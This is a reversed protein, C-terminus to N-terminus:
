MVICASRDAPQPAPANPTPAPNPPPLPYVTQAPRVSHYSPYNSARSSSPAASSSRPVNHVQTSYPSLYTSVYTPPAPPVNRVPPPSTASQYYQQYSSQTAQQQAAIQAKRDTIDSPHYYEILYEPYTQHNDFIVFISPSALSNVCTDYLGLKPQKPDIPPPRKFEDNGVACRGIVVRVFFMYRFCHNDPSPRTYNDSYMATNAFYAGKGFATGNVGHMRQDFGLACINRVVDIDGTGHFLSRWPLHDKTKQKEM